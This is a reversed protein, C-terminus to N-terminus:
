MKRSRQLGGDMVVVTTFIYIAEAKQSNIRQAVQTTM